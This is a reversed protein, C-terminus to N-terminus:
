IEETVVVKALIDSYQILLYNSGDLETETGSYKKYLVTDGVAIEAMDIKSISLVKGTEPKEKASDPIIIGGPTVQESSDASIDLLVYQNVPQLERM